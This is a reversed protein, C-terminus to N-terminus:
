WVKVVLRCAPRCADTTRNRFTVIRASSAASQNSASNPTAMVTGDYTVLENNNISKVSININANRPLGYRTRLQDESKSLVTQLETANLENRETGESLNLLIARGVRDAQAKEASGVGSTFPTLFSPFLGFVLTVTVLFLSIGFLFDHLTQARDDDSLSGSRRTRTPPKSSM